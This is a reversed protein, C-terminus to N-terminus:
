RHPADRDEIRSQLLPPDGYGMDDVLILLINPKSQSVATGTLFLLAFLFFVSLKM